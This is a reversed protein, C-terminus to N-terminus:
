ISKRPRFYVTFDQYKSFNKLGHFYRKFASDTLSFRAAPGKFSLRETDYMLRPIIIGQKIARQFKGGYWISEIHEEMPFFNINGNYLRKRRKSETLLVPASDGIIPHADTLYHVRFIRLLNQIGPHKKLNGELMFKIRGDINM